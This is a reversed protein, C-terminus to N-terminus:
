QQSLINTQNVGLKRVRFSLLTLIIDFVVAFTAILWALFIAVTGPQALRFVGFLMSALGGLILLWEGEIEKRSRIAAVIGLVGTTIAWLAIYFLLALVTICPTAWILIGVVIGQEM